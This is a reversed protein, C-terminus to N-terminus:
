KGDVFVENFVAQMIYANHLPWMLEIDYMYVVFSM